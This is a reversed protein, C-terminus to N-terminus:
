CMKFPAISLKIYPKDEAVPTIKTVVVCCVQKKKEDCLAYLMNQNVDWNKALCTIKSLM